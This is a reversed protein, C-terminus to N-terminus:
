KKLLPMVAADLFVDIYSVDEQIKMQWRIGEETMSGGGGAGGRQRRREREEEEMRAVERAKAEAM